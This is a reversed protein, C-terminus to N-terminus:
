YGGGGTVTKALLHRGKEERTSDRRFCPGLGRVYILLERASDRRFYPALSTVYVSLERTSDRRLHPVLGWRVYVFLERTSDRRLYPVLGWRVYVFLERTSRLPCVSVPSMDTASSERSRRFDARESAQRFKTSSCAGCLCGSRVHATCDTCIGPCASIKKRQPQLVRREKHGNNRQSTTRSNIKWSCLVVDASNVKRWGRVGSHRGWSPFVQCDTRVPSVSTSKWCWSCSHHRLRNFWM